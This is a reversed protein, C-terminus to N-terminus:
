LAPGGQRTPGATRLRASQWQHQTTQVRRRWPNFVLSAPDPGDHKGSPVVPGSIFGPSPFLLACISALVTIRLHRCLVALRFCFCVSLLLSRWAPLCAPLAVSLCVSPSVSRGLFVSFSSFSLFGWFYSFLSLSLSLSVVLFLFRFLCLVLILLLVFVLNLLLFLSFSLFFSLFFSLCFSLSLCRSLSLPLSLSLSLSLRLSLSPSVSLSLSSFFDSVFLFLYFSISASVACLNRM